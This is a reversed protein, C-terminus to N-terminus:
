RFRADHPQAPGILPMVLLFREAHGTRRFGLRLFDDGLQDLTLSSGPRPSAGWLSNNRPYWPDAVTVRAVDFPAQLPDATARFGTMVWAHRGRWVLLGVPKGTTRIARAAVEVAGELTPESRLIWTGMGLEVLARAWGRASAGRPEGAFPKPPDISLWSLERALQQVRAQTRASRDAGPRAMNVMMQISAGICQVGNTQSVFDGSALLDMSFPGAAEATAGAPARTGARGAPGTGLTTAPVALALVLAVVIPILRRIRAVLLSVVLQSM